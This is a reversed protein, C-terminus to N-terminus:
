VSTDVGKEKEVLSQNISEQIESILKESKLSNIYIELEEKLIDRLKNKSLKM